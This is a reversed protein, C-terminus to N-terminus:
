TPWGQSLHAETAFFSDERDTFFAHYRGNGQAVALVRQGHFRHFPQLTSPQNVWMHKIPRHYLIDNYAALVFALDTHLQDAMFSRVDGEDRLRAYYELDKRIEVFSETLRAPMIHNNM